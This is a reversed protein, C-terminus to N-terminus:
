ISFHKAEHEKRRHRRGIQAYAAYGLLAGINNLVIDSLEFWGRSTVYQLTEIALTLAFCCLVIRKADCGCAMPLLLGVPILMVANVFFEPKSGHLIRETLSMFVNPYFDVKGGNLPRTIVTAALVIVLYGALVGAAVSSKYRKGEFGTLAMHLGGVVVAVILAIGWWRFGLRAITYTFLYLLLRKLEDIIVCGKM